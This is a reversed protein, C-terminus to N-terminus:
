IVSLAANNFCYIGNGTPRSNSMKAASVKSALTGDTQKVGCMARQKEGFIRRSDDTASDLFPRIRREILWALFM